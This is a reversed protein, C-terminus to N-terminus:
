PLIEKLYLVTAPRRSADVMVDLLTKPGGADFHGVIRARAVQGRTTIYPAIRRLQALTLLGETVLWAPTTRRVDMKSPGRDEDRATVISRALSVNLGPLGALVEEAAENVNIRGEIVPGEITTLSQSLQQWNTDLSEGQASWPSELLTDQESVMARVRVGILDVLSKIKVKPKADLNLGGRRAMYGGNLSDLALGGGNQLRARQEAAAQEEDAGPKQMRLRAALERDLEVSGYLRYAVIFRAAKAGLQRELEDYLPALAVRNVNIKPKGDARLNSEASVVTLLDAWPKPSAGDSADQSSRGYLLEASVGRVLLLERLHEIRGNRPRYPPSQSTYYSVEAGHERPEDDADLWDLIADAIPFTMGPLGLLMQRAIQRQHKELPLANLNLKASEDALGAQLTSTDTEARPPLYVSVRGRDRPSPADQVLVNELTSTQKEVGIRHPKDTLAAAALEIGSLAFAHTQARRGQAAVSTADFLMLEAFSYAGLALFM